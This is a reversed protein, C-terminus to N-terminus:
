KYKNKKKKCKLGCKQKAFLESQIFQDNIVASFSTYTKQLTVGSKM